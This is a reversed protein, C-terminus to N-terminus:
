KKLIGLYKVGHLIELEIEYSKWNIQKFIKCQIRYQSHSAFVETQPCSLPHLTVGTGKVIGRTSYAVGENRVFAQRQRTIQGNYITSVQSRLYSRVRGGALGGLAAYRCDCLLDTQGRGCM